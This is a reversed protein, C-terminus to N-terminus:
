SEMSVSQKGTVILANRLIESAAQILLLASMVIIQSKLLYVWPLGGAERSSERLEIADAVYEYSSTIIFLSVPILFFLTGFLDVWARKKPSMRHYFIDVRVHQNHKLAFAAGLLFVLAHAYIVSEQLAISGVNFVYRMVVIVFTILVMYLVFWSIIKGTWESVQDFRKQTEALLSM